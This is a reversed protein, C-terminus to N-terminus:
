QVNDNTETEEKINKNNTVHALTLQGKWDMNFERIMDDHLLVSTNHNM